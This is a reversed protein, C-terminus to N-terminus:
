DAVFALTPEGIREVHWEDRAQEAIRHVVAATMDTVGFLESIRERVMEVDFPKCSFVDLHFRRHEAFTHISIHSEAIIVVGTVGWDEPKVGSYRFVYPPAIKTMGIREPLTDLLDFIAAVDGLRQGDAVFADVVLHQMQM